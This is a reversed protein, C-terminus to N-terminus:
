GWKQKVREFLEERALIRASSLAHMPSIYSIHRRLGEPRGGYEQTLFYKEVLDIWGFAISVSKNGKRTIDSVEVSNLMLGTDVRGVKGGRIGSMVTEIVEQMHMAGDEAVDALIESAERLLQNRTQEIAKRTAVEITDGVWRLGM